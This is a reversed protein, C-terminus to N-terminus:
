RPVEMSSHASNAPHLRTRAGEAADPLDCCELADHLERTEPQLTVHSVGWNRRLIETIEAIPSACDAMDELEVHASMAVFSPALSWVHVDHLAVVGDVALADQEM